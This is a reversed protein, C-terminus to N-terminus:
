RKRRKAEKRKRRAAPRVYYERRRAEARIGGQQITKNFRRFAALTEAPEEAMGIRATAGATSIMADVYAGLQRSRAAGTSSASCAAASSHPASASM